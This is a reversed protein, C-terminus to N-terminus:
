NSPLSSASKQAWTTGSLVTAVVAGLFFPVIFVMCGMAKGLKRQRGAKTLPIGIQRSIQAKANSIGLARKWSFSLGPVGGKRKAMTLEEIRKRADILILRIAVNAPLTM